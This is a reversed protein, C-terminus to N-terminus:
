LLVHCDDCGQVLHLSLEEGIQAFLAQLKVDRWRLLRRLASDGEGNRCSSHINASNIDAFISIQLHRAAQIPTYHPGNMPPGIPFSGLCCRSDSLQKVVEVIDARSIEAKRREVKSM